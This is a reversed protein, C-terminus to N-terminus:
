SKAQPCRRVPSRTPSRAASTDQDVNLSVSYDSNLVLTTELGLADMRTVLLDGAAFTKFTFSFTTTSGNGTYPGARRATSPVTM